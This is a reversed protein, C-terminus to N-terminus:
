HPIEKVYNGVISWLEYDSVNQYISPALSRALRIQEKTYPRKIRNEWTKITQEILFTQLCKIEGLMDYAELATFYIDKDENHIVMPPYGRLMLYYNLITRGVRGNGDAFPHITEFKAHLYAAANIPDGDFTNIVNLLERIDSEVDEPASGEDIMGVRYDGIKFEGPREGKDWMNQDYSGYLMVYHIKKLLEVSLPVKHVLCHLVSKFAFKQNRVEFVVRPIVGQGSLPQEEFIERTTHYSLNDGEINMSNCAFLIQFNDLVQEYDLRTKLENSQWWMLVDNYTM